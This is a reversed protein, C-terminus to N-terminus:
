RPNMRSALRLSLREEGVEPASPLPQREGTSCFGVREYFRRARTNGDAVWLGVLEAGDQGALDLAATLLGASTGGGRAQPDVWMSVLSREDARGQEPLLAVVGVVRGAKRAVFWAGARLFSRWEREDYGRERELTSAFAHPADALAALRVDRLVWWEDDGLREIRTV